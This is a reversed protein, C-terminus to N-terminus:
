YHFTAGKSFSMTASAFVDDLLTKLQDEKRQQERDTKYNWVSLLHYTYLLNAQEFCPSAHTM